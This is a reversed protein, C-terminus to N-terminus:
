SVALLGANVAESGVYDGVNGLLTAVAKEHVQLAQQAVAQFLEGKASFLTSALASVEDSAAPVVGTTPEQAGLVTVRLGDGVSTLVHACETIVQPEVSLVLGM